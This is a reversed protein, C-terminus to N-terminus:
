SGVAAVKGMWRRDDQKLTERAEGATTPTGIPSALSETSVRDGDVVRIRVDILYRGSADEDIM